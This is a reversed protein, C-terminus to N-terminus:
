WGGLFSVVLAVMIVDFVGALILCLPADTGVIGEEKICWAVAWTLMNIEGKGQVM